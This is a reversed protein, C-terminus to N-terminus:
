HIFFLLIALAIIGAVMIFLYFGVMGSQLYRLRNSAAHLLKGVGNVAGDIVQEEVNTKLVNAAAFTPKVIANDYAEDFLWKDELFKAIGKNQKKADYNKYVSWALIIGLFAIIVAIAM